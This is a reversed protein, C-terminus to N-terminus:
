ILKMIRLQIVTQILNLAFSLHLGYDGLAQRYLTPQNHNHPIHCTFSMHTVHSHVPSPNPLVTFIHTKKKGLNCFSTNLKRKSCELCWFNTQKGCNVSSYHKSKCYRKELSNQERSQSVCKHNRGQEGQSILTLWPTLM